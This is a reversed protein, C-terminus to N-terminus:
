KLNFAYCFKKPTCTHTHIHTHTHTCVHVYVCVSVLLLGSTVLCCGTGGTPVPGFGPSPEFLDYVFWYLLPSYTDLNATSSFSCSNSALSSVICTILKSMLTLVHYLTTIIHTHTHTHVRSWASYSMGLVVPNLPLKIEDRSKIICIKCALTRRNSCRRWKFSMRISSRCDRRSLIPMSSLGVWFYLFYSDILWHYFRQCFQSLHSGLIETWLM